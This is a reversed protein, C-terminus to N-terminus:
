TFWEPPENAAVAGSGDTAGNLTCYLKVDYAADPVPYLWLSGGFLVYECPRGQQANAATAKARSTQGVHDLDFENGNADVVTARKVHRIAASVAYEAQGSVTTITAVDEFRDTKVAIEVLGQRLYETLQDEDATTPVLTADGSRRALLGARTRVQKHFDALTM